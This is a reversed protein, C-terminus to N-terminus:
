QKGGSEENRAATLALVVRKLEEGDVEGTPIVMRRGAGSHRAAWAYVARIFAFCMATDPIPEPTRGGALRWMPATTMSRRGELYRNGLRDAAGRRSRDGGRDPLSRPRTLRLFAFAARHHRRRRGRSGGASVHIDIPERPLDRRMRRFEDEAADPPGFRGYATKLDDYCQLQKIAEEIQKPTVQREEM